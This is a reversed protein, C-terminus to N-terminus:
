RQTFRKWAPKFGRFPENRAFRAGLPKGAPAARAPDPASANLAESRESTAARPQAPYAPTEVSRTEVTEVSGSRQVAQAAIVLMPAIDDPDSAVQKPTPPEPITRLPQNEPAIGQARVDSKAERVAARQRLQGLMDDYIKLLEQRERVNQLAV